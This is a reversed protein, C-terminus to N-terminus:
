EFSDVERQFHELIASERPEFLEFMQNPCVLNVIIEEPFLSESPRSLYTELEKGSTAGPTRSGPEPLEPFGAVQCRVPAFLRAIGPLRTATTYSRQLSFLLAGPTNASLTRVASARM